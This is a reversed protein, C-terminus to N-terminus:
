MPFTKPMQIANADLQLAAGGTPRGRRKLPTKPTAQATPTPVARSTSAAHVFPVSLTGIASISPARLSSILTNASSLERPARELRRAVPQTNFTIQKRKTQSEVRPSRRPVQVAQTLMTAARYAAIPRFWQRQQEARTLTPAPATTPELVPIVEEPLAEEMIVADPIEEEPLEEEPINAELM